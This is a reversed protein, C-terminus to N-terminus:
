SGTAPRAQPTEEVIIVPDLELAHALKPGSLRIGYAWTQRQGRGRDFRLVRGTGVVWHQEDLEFSDSEFFSQQSLKSDLRLREGRALDVCTWLVERAVPHDVSRGEATWYIVPDVHTPTRVFLRTPKGLANRAIGITVLEASTANVLHSGLRPTQLMSM